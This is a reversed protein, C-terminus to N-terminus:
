CLCKAYYVSNDAEKYDGFIERETFGCREYFKRASTLFTKTKLLLAMWRRRRAEDELKELILGAISKDTAEDTSSRGRYAPEVFMRKIEATDNSSLLPRLGGCGAPVGAVYVVLFIPVDAATPPVTPDTGGLSNIEDRQLQRLYVSDPHDWSLFRVEVSGTASM